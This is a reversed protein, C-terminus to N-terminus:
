NTPTISSGTVNFKLYGPVSAEPKATIAKGLDKDQIVYSQSYAGLIKAGDRFWFYKMTSGEPYLTHMASVTAGLKAQGTVTLSASGTWKGHKVLKSKTIVLDKFGPASAVVQVAIQKQVDAATLAYSNEAASTTAFEVGNRLWVLKVDVGAPYVGPDVVFNTGVTFTGQLKPAVLAKLVRLPVFVMGASLKEVSRYGEKSGSVIVQIAKGVLSSGLYLSSKSAEPILQGDAFWKYSFTTGATWSGTDAKLTKGFLATGSVSTVGAVLDGLSVVDAYAVAVSADFGALTAKVRISIQHGYDAATLVYTTKTASAIPSSGRFWQVSSVVGAPWSGLDATLSSGVKAAGSIAPSSLPVISGASVIFSRSTFYADKFGAVRVRTLVRMTTGADEATFQYSSSTAGEVPRGNRFWQYEFDADYEDSTRVTMSSPMKAEGFLEPEQSWVQTGLGVTVPESELSKTLYGQKSGTVLVSVNHGADLGTLKYSASVAGDIVVGDRLWQYEFSVGEDWGVTSGAVVLGAAPVGYVSPKPTSTLATPAVVGATVGRLNLSAGNVSGSVVVSLTGGVDSGIPRYSRSVAGDIVVGDLYWQYSVDVGAGWIGPNVTVDHDVVTDGSVTPTIESGAFQSPLMMTITKDETLEGLPSIAVRGSNNPDVASVQILGGSVSSTDFFQAITDGNADTRPISRWEPYTYGWSWGKIAAPQFGFHGGSLSTSSNFVPEGTASDVVHIKVTRMIPIELDLNQAVGDSSIDVGYKYLQASVWRQSVPEVWGDTRLTGVGPSLLFSYFGNVDTTASASFGAGEFRLSVGAVPVGGSSVVGSLSTLAPLTMTITKDETLEGLPSIAVRGSNNPDVASVQILGGSVSSTDFFQAITDGNADTRPISRWEPYTYGWSWGKIAAPQFGFHGGSLSTSSNFVPEGTASDVVHIKVTRMIPIELDLNQAVGDSSIDVGYKYLQASVWRQSVPEVWGDTRLTGVGPSLLFSYFGNVDTTASASFGAGEFRLSVGAVPVGGSSVVGSLTSMQAAKAPQIVSLSVLLALTAVLLQKAITVFRQTNINSM